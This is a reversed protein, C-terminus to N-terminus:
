NNMDNYHDRDFDRHFDDEMENNTNGKPNIILYAIIGAILVGAFFYM